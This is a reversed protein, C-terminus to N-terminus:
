LYEASTSKRLIPKYNQWTETAKEADFPDGATFLAKVNRLVNDVPCIM